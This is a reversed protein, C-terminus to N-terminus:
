GYWIVRHIKHFLSLRAHSAGRNTGKIYECSLQYLIGHRGTPHKVPNFLLNYTHYRQHHVGLVLRCITHTAPPQAPKNKTHSAHFTYIIIDLLLASLNGPHPNSLPHCTRRSLCCFLGGPLFRAAGSILSVM